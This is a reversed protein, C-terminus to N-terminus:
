QLAPIAKSAGAIQMNFNIGRGDTAYITATAKTGAAVEKVMSDDMTTSAECVGPECAVYNLKRVAGNEVKLEVGPQIQVGTPTRLFTMLKGEPTRGIIWAFVVQRHEQDIVQLTASCSRKAKGGVIDRCTVTWADYVITETRQPGEPTAPTAASEAAATSPSAAPPRPQQKKQPTTRPPATQARLDAWIAGAVVCVLIACLSRVYGM